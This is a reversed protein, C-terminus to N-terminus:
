NVLKAKDGPQDDRHEIADAIDRLLEAVAMPAMAKLAHEVAAQLLAGGIQEDSVGFQQEVRQMVTAIAAALRMGVEQDHKESMVDERTAPRGESGARPANISAARYTPLRRRTETYVHARGLRANQALQTRTQRPRRRAAGVRNGLVPACRM